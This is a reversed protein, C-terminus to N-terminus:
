RSPEQNPIAFPPVRTHETLIIDIAVLECASIMFPVQKVELSSALM